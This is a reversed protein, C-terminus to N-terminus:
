KILKEIKNIDNRFDEEAMIHTNAINIGHLVTTHDRGFRAGIETLPLKTHRKILLFMIHRCRVLISKRSKSRVDQMKVKFYACCLQEILDATHVDHRGFKFLHAVGPLAMYSTEKEMVMIVKM